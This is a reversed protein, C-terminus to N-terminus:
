RNETVTFTHAPETWKVADALAQNIQAEKVGQKRLSTIFDQLDTKQSPSACSLTLTYNPSSTLQEECKTKLKSATTAIRKADESRYFEALAKKALEYRKNVNSRMCAAVFFEHLAHDARDQTKPPVTGAKSAGIESLAKVVNNLLQSM